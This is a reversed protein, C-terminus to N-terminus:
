DRVLPPPDHREEDGGARDSERALEERAREDEREREGGGIRQQEPCETEVRRGLAPPQPPKERDWVLSAAIGPFPVATTASTPQAFPRAAIRESPRCPRRTM